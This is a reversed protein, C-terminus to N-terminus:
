CDLGAMGAPGPRTPPPPPLTRNAYASIDPRARALWGIRKLGCKMRGWFGAEDEESVVLGRLVEPAHEAFWHSVEPNFSLVAIQAERGQIADLVARCLRGVTRQRSKVEGLMSSEGGM